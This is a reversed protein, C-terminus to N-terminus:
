IKIGNKQELVCVFGLNKWGTSFTIGKAKGTGHRM